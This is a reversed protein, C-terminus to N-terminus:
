GAKKSHLKEHNALLKQRLQEMNKMIEASIDIEKGDKIIKRKVFKQLYAEEEFYDFDYKISKLYDFGHYIADSIIEYIAENKILDDLNTYHDNIRQLEAQPEDKLYHKSFIELENTTITEVDTTDKGAAEEAELDIKKMAKRAPGKLHQGEHNAINALGIKAINEDAEFLDNINPITYEPFIINNEDRKTTGVIKITETGHKLTGRYPEYGDLGIDEWENKIIFDQFGEKQIIKGLAELSKQYHEDAKYKNTLELWKKNLLEVAKPYNDIRITKIEPKKFEASDDIIVERESVTNDNEKSNKYQGMEPNFIEGM